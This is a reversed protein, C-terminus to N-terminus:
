SSEKKGYGVYKSLKLLELPSVGRLTSHHFVSGIHFIPQSLLMYFLFSLKARMSVEISLRMVSQILIINMGDEELAAMTVFRGFTIAPLM